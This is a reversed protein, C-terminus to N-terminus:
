VPMEEQSEDEDADAAGTYAFVCGREIVMQGLQELAGSPDVRVQCKLTAKSGHMLEMSCNKLVAKKFSFKESTKLMGLTATGEASLDLPFSTVNPLAPAGESDFLHASPQGRRSVILRDIDDAELLIQLSLDAREVLADGNREPSFNLNTVKCQQKKLSVKPGAAKAKKKAEAKAKAM